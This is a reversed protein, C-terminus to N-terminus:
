HTKERKKKRLEELYELAGPSDKFSTLDKGSIIYNIRPAIFHKFLMGDFIGYHWAEELIYYLWQDANKLFKLVAATQGLWCVDDKRSEFANVKWTYSSYHVDKWKYKVKGSAPEKDIFVRQITELFFEETLDMVAMYEEYFELDKKVSEKDGRLYASKIKELANQHRRQNMAMFSILQLYWPYVRRKAGKNKVKGSQPMVEQIVQKSKLEQVSTNDAHKNVATPSQSTDMPGAMLTLSRPTKLGNEECYAAAAMVWPCPQCVSVVDKVGQADLTQFFDIIYEMFEETWFRIKEWKEDFLPVDRADKWDTIYVHSTKILERITWRLLTSFHWSMPAVLFVKPANKDPHEFHLLDCFSKSEIIKPEITLGEREIKWETKKRQALFKETGQAESELIAAYYEQIYDSVPNWWKYKRLFESFELAASTNSLVLMEMSEKMNYVNTPNELLAILSWLFGDSWNIGSSLFDTIFTDWFIDKTARSSAKIVDICSQFLSLQWRWMWLMYEQPTKAELLSSAAAFVTNGSSILADPIRTSAKTVQHLWWDIEQRPIYNM